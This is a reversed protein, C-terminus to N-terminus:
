KKEILTVTVDANEGLAGSSKVAIRIYTAAIRNDLWGVYTGDTTLTESTQPTVGGAVDFWSIDQWNVGDISVAVTVTSTVGVTEGDQDYTVFFTVRDADGIYRDAEIRDAVGTLTEANIMVFETQGAYCHGALLAMFAM